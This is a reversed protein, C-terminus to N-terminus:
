PKIEKETKLRFTKYKHTEEQVVALAVVFEFKSKSDSCYITKTETDIILEM